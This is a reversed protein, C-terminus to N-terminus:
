YGFDFPMGSDEKPIDALIGTTTLLMLGVSVGNSLSRDVVKYSDIVGLELPNGYKRDRADYALDESNLLKEEVVDVKDSANLLIKKFPYKIVDGFMSQILNGEDLSQSAKLLAAGGGPLFGSELAGRCANIADEVRDMREKDEIDSLAPIQVTYIKGQLSALREMTKDSDGEQYGIAKAKKNLIELRKDLRVQNIQPNYLVSHWPTVEVKEAYGLDELKMDSFKMDLKEDYVLAGTFAALDDMMERGVAGFYPAKVIANKIVGKANNNIQNALFGKDAKNAVILLSEGREVLPQLVNKEIAQLLSASELDFTTFLIRCKKLTETKDHCGKVFEYSVVGANPIKMGVTQKLHYKSGSVTSNVLGIKGAAATAESIIKSINSDGNTSIMAIKYLVSKIEDESRDSFEVKMENLRSKILILADQVERRIHNVDHKAAALKGGERIIASAIATSTTTGDGAESNTKEAAQKLIEAILAEGPDDAEFVKAVSVGDKTIVPVGEESHLAINQGFPGMTACVFSEFERAVKSIKETTGELTRQKAM